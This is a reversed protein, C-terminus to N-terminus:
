LDPPRWDARHTAVIERQGLLVQELAREATASLAPVPGGETCSSTASAGVVVLDDTEDDFLESTHLVDVADLKPLTCEVRSGSVHRSM